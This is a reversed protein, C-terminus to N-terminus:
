NLFKITVNYQRERCIYYMKYDCRLDNWCFKNSDKSPEYHVCFENDHENDPQGDCWQTYSFSEHNAMWYFDMMREFDTGGTWIYRKVDDDEPIDKLISSVRLHEEESNIYILDAGM